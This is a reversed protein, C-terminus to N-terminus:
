KQKGGIKKENSFKDDIFKRASNYANTITGVMKPPVKKLSSEISGYRPPCFNGITFADLKGDLDNEVYNIQTGDPLRATILEYFTGQQDPCPKNPNNGRSIWYQQASREYNTDGINFSFNGESGTTEIIRLNGLNITCSHQDGAHYYERSREIQLYERIPCGILAAPIALIAAWKFTKGIVLGILDLTREKMNNEGGIREIKIELDFLNM